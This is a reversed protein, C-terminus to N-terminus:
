SVKSFDPPSSIRSSRQNWFQIQFSIYESPFRDTFQNAYIYPHEQAYRLDIYYSNRPTLRKHIYSVSDPIHIYCGHFVSYVYHEAACGDCIIGYTNKFTLSHNNEYEEDSDSDEDVNDDFPTVEIDIEELSINYGFSDPTHCTYQFDLSSATNFKHLTTQPLIWHTSTECDIPSNREANIPHKNTLLNEYNFYIPASCNSCCHNGVKNDVKITNRSSTIDYVDHVDRSRMNRIDNHYVRPIIDRAQFDIEFM